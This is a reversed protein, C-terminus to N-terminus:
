MLLFVGLEGGKWLLTDISRCVESYLKKYNDTAKRSKVENYDSSFKGQVEMDYHIM